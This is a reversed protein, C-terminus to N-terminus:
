EIYSKFDHIVELNLALAGCASGVLSVQPAKEKEHPTLLSAYPILLKAGGQGGKWSELKGVKWGELKGVKWSVM